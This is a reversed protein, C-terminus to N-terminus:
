WRRPFQAQLVQLEAELERVRGLLRLALALGGADLDFDDRLRCAKRALELCGADFLVDAVDSVAGATMPPLADCEVLLELESWTLGSLEALEAMSYPGADDLWVAELIEVRM